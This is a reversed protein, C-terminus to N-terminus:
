SAVGRGLCECFGHVGDESFGGGLAAPDPDVGFLLHQLVGDVAPRDVEHAFVVLVALGHEVVGQLGVEFCRPAFEGVLELEGVAFAPGQGDLEYAAGVDFVVDSGADVVGFGLRVLAVVADHAVEEAAGDRADGFERLHTEEEGAVVGAADGGRAVQDALQLGLAVQFRQGFEALQLAHGIMQATSQQLVALLRRSGNPRRTRRDHRRGDRAHIFAQRPATDLFAHLIEHASRHLVM